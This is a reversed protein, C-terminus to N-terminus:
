CSNIIPMCCGPLDGADQLCAHVHLGFGSGTGVEYGSMCPMMVDLVTLDLLGWVRVYQIGLGTIEFGLGYRNMGPMMIDLLVLHAQVGCM